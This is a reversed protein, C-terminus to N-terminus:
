LVDFLQVLFSFGGVAYYYFFNFTCFLSLINFAVLSFPWPLGILIVGLKENSVGFALLDQDQLGSSVV